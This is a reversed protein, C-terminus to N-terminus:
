ANVAFLPLMVMGALGYVISVAKGREDDGFLDMLLEQMIPMSAVAGILLIIVLVFLQTLTQAFGIVFAWLGWIGTVFILVKKRNYKRSVGAWFPGFFVSIIKPLAAMWGLAGLTMGLQVRIIPFLATIFSTGENNDMMSAFSLAFSSKWRGKVKPKGQPLDKIVLDEVAM